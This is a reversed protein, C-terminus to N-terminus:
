RRPNPYVSVKSMDEIHGDPCGQRSPPPPSLRERAEFEELTLTKSDGALVPPATVILALVAVFISEIVFGRLTGRHEKQM